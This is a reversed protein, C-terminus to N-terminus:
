DRPPFFGSIAICYNIACYPQMQSIPASSGASNITVTGTVAGGGVNLTVNPATANYLATSSSALVNARDSPTGSTGTTNNAKITASAASLVATHNHAPMNALSLTVSETGAYQGLPYTPTGVGNMGVLVKGRLDPINFNSSGNGGFYTGILSYLATNQVIQLLQGQCLLWGMPAYGFGFSMISALFVDM